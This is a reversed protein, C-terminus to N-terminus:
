DIETETEFGPESTKSSDYRERADEVPGGKAESRVREITEYVEVPDDIVARHCRIDLGRRVGVRLEDETLSVNTVWEWPVFRESSWSRHAVIGEEHVRLEPLFEPDLPDYTWEGGFRSPFRQTRGGAEIRDPDQNYRTVFAFIVFLLGMAVMWFGALGGDTASITGLGATLSGIGIWAMWWHQRPNLQPVTLIPDDSTIARAYRSRGMSSIGWGCLGTVLAGLGAGVAAGLPLPFALAGLSLAGFGVPISLPLLRSRLSSGIREALGERRSALLSGVLLGITVTSTVGGVLTSVAAGTAAAATLFAFTLAAAAYVGSAAVFGVDPTDLDDPLSTSM